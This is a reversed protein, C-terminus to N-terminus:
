ASCSIFSNHFSLQKNKNSIPTHLLFPIFVVFLNIEKAESESIHLQFPQLATSFGCKVTENCKVLLSILM